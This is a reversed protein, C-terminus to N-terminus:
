SLLGLLVLGLFAAVLGGIVQWFATPNPPPRLGRRLRERPDTAKVKGRRIDPDDIDEDYRSRGGFLSQAAGVGINAYGGGTTGGMLLLLVGWGVLGYSAGIALGAGTFTAILLGLLAAVACGIGFAALYGPIRDRLPEQEGTRDDVM